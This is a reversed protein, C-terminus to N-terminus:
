DEQQWFTQHLQPKDPFRQAKYHSPFLQLRTPCLPASNRSQHAHKAKLANLFELGAVVWRARLRVGRPISMAEASAAPPVPGLPLTSQFQGGVAPNGWRSSEIPLCTSHRLHRSCGPGSATSVWKRGTVPSALPGSSPLCKGQGTRPM